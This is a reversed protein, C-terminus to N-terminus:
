PLTSSELVGKLAVTAQTWLVNVLSKTESGDVLDSKPTKICVSYLPSSNVDSLLIVQIKDYCM